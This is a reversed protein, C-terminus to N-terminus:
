KGGVIHDIKDDLLGPTFLVGVLARANLSMVHAHIHQHEKPYNQELYARLKGTIKSKIEHKCGKRVEQLHIGMMAVPSNTEDDREVREEQMVKIEEYELCIGQKRAWEHLKGQQTLIKM